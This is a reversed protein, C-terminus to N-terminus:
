DNWVSEGIVNYNFDYYYDIIYNVNKIYNENVGYLIRLIIKRKFVYFMIMITDHSKKM